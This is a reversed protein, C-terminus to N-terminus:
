INKKRIFVNFYFLSKIIHNMGHVERFLLLTKRMFEMFYIEHYKNRDMGEKSPYYTIKQTSQKYEYKYHAIANRLKNDISDKDIIYFSDDIAEIKKGLDVNAYNDLSSFAEIVCGKKNIRVSDDFLNYDNRKLLNNLGALLILQRSFVEALDKYYNNCTEFEATSIRAPSKKYEDDNTYDYYFTPRIPLELDLLKPYLSISDHHINRLFNNGVIKDSFENLKDRCTFSLMNLLKPMENSIESNHEHITFPSSMVSTATYLAALVDEKKNSKLKVKPINKCLKKFSVLDGRIYQVILRQLDRRKNYLFNLMELRHNLHHYSEHGIESVTKMFATHGMEYKGFSVPFDLHLDVFPNTGNFPTLGKTESAGKLQGDESAGYVFSIVEECIPCAFQFPQIDRNSMGIRCDIRTGCTDCDFSQCINM